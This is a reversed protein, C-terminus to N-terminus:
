YFVMDLTSFPVMNPSRSQDRFVDRPNTLMLQAEQKKRAVHQDYTSSLAAAGDRTEATRM